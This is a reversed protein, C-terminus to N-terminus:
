GEPKRGRAVYHHGLPTEHIRIDEFGSESFIRFLEDGTKYHIYWNGYFRMMFRTLDFGRKEKMNTTVLTGGPKLISRIKRFLLVTEDPTMYDIYGHTGVGDYHCPPEMESVRKISYVGFEMCGSVGERGAVLGSYDIADQKIDTCKVLLRSNGRSKVQKIARVPGMSCGCALDLYRCTEGNGSVEGRGMIEALIGTYIDLRNRTDRSGELGLTFPYLLRELFGEPRDEYITRLAQWSGPGHHFVDRALRSCRDLLLKTPVLFLFAPLGKKQKDSEVQAMQNGM